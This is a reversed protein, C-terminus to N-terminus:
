VQQIASLLWRGGRQRAFTWVEEQEVPARPDGSIVADPMGPATGLRVTFDNATWQLHATAYELGGEDWAETVDGKILRVNSVVNQVGQSTNKTLEESFYGLMEPTMLSRLRALDGRGWAEQVAAHIAQFDNLDADNVTTDVGRYQAMPAVAAGASRPMVRGPGARAALSGSFWRFLLWILLGLILLHFFGGFVYGFPGMGRFLMSGLWGGFLGTLFPHRAFIGGGYGYGGYGYGYGYGAGPHMSRTIAGAGNPEFTRSGRSGLGSFSSSGGFSFSRGARAEALGPAFALVLCFLLALLAKLKPRPIAPSAPLRLPLPQLSM